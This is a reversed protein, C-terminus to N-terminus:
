GSTALTRTLRLPDGPLRGALRNTTRPQNIVSNQRVGVKLVQHLPAEGRAVRQVSARVAQTKTWYADRTGTAVHLTLIVNPTALLPNDADPPEQAPVDLAAGAIWEETLAQVLAQEDVLIGAESCTRSNVPPPPQGLSPRRAQTM